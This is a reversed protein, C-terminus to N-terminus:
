NSITVPIGASTKTQGAADRARATLTYIGNPKTRSDWSLRAKDVQNPLVESGIPQGNLLFQVGAVAQDDVATAQLTVTGSFSSPVAWLAVIPPAFDAGAPHAAKWAAVRSNWYDLGASGTMVTFCSPLSAPLPGTGLWVMVNNSCSKLKPPAFYEGAGDGEVPVADARFVTNNIVLSPGNSTNPTGSGVWKFFGGSGPATLSPYIADMQELWVLSNQVTVTNNTGDPSGTYTRSSLFTYCGEALVDDILGNNLFDNEICDDRMYRIYMGRVTWNASGQYDFTIGDGGTFVRVNEVTVNAAHVNIGYIDHYNGSYPFDPPDQAMIEGGSWCLGSGGGIMV